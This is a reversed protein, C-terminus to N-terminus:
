HRLRRLGLQAAARALPRRLQHWAEALRAAEDHSPRRAFREHVYAEVITRVSAAGEPVSDAVRRGYEHPTDSAQPRLGLWGAVRTLRAFAGEAATLGRLPQWWFVAATLGLVALLGLLPGIPLRRLPAAAAPPALGDPQEIPQAPRIQRELEEPDLASSALQASMEPTGPRVMAPDSGTPEFEIWGYEPFYVEPWTHADYEHQRYTATLPNFEGRSYGAAVRAPIGVARAMVVFASSYYDCYGRREDFLFWDVRDRERPPQNIEESYPISRLYSEIAAAADYRNGAGGSVEKALDMVREPVAGPVGTYRQRVWAPDDGAAAQLSAVDAASVRSVVEYTAGVALPLQSDITLTDPQDSSGSVEARVPLSFQEPQPAAYLQQINAQYVTITQTVPVTLAYDPALDLGEGEAVSDVSRSWGSGDYSDFTTMRWYRPRLAPELTEPVSADFIARAGLAISGSLAMNSGFEVGGGRVPYNLNPFLRNFQQEMFRSSGTLQGAMAQLRESGIHAPVLWGFAIVAVSVLMGDRLFELALDPSYGIRERRWRETQLTLHTRAALLFACLLFFALYTLPQERRTSYLNFLLAFGAPLVAGWWSIYRVIFWTSIYSLLWLLLGMTVVFFLRNMDATYVRGVVTDVLFPPDNPQSWAISLWGLLWDRVLELREFRSLAALRAPEVSQFEDLAFTALFVTSLTGVAASWLHALTAPMWQMAGLIVGAAADISWAVTLLMLSLLVISSWGTVPKLNSM